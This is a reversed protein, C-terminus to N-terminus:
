GTLSIQLWVLRWHIEKLSQTIRIANNRMLVIKIKIYFLKYCHKSPIGGTVIEGTLVNENLYLVHTVDKLKIEDFM